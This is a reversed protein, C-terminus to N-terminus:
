PECCCIPELVTPADNYSMCDLGWAVKVVLEDFLVEFGGMKVSPTQEHLEHSIVHEVGNGTHNQKIQRDWAFHEHYIKPNSVRKQGNM